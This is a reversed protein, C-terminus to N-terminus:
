CGGPGFRTSRASSQGGGSEQDGGKEEELLQLQCEGDQGRAVQGPGGRSCPISGLVEETAPHCGGAGERKGQQKKDVRGEPEHEQEQQRSRSRGRSGSGSKEEQEQKQEQEQEQKQKQELEQEQEQEQEESVSEEKFARGLKFTIEM